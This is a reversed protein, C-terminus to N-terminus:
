TQERASASHPAAFPFSPHISPPLSLRLVGDPVVVVPICSSRGTRGDDAHSHIHAGLLSRSSSRVGSGRIPAFAPSGDGDRADASFASRGFGDGDKKKAKTGTGSEGDRARSRANESAGEVCKYNVRGM